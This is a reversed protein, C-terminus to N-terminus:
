VNTESIEQNNELVQERKMQFLKVFNVMPLNIKGNQLSMSTITAIHARAISYLTSTGNLVLMREFQEKNDECYSFRGEISLDVKMSRNEENDISKATVNLILLVNAYLEGNNEEIDSFANKIEMSTDLDNKNPLSVFDNEINLERIISSKFQFESLYDISNNM